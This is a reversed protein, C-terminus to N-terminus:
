HYLFRACFQAVVTGANYLKFNTIAVGSAFPNPVGSAENWILPVGGTIVLVDNNTPDNTKLTVTQDCSIILSKLNAITISLGSITTTGNNAAVTVGSNPPPDGVRLEEKDTETVTSNYQENASNAAHTHIHSPM